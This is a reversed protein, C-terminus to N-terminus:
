MNKRFTRTSNNSSTNWASSAATEADVARLGGTGILPNLWILRHCSRQLRAMQNRLVDPDGRDWGDSILLVVPGRSLVVRSRRQLFLRLAEGSRTGGSWDPVSRSVAAVAEDLHRRRLETTIRTLRTSFLFAEFRRHRRGMAHVFQLLMRSSREMSGREGPSWVLRDLAARALTAEKEVPGCAIAHAVTFAAAGEIHEAITARQVPATASTASSSNCSPSNSKRSL